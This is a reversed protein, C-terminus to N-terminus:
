HSPSVSLLIKAYSLMDTGIQYKHLCSSGAGACTIQFLNDKEFKKFVSGKIEVFQNSVLLTLLAHDYSNVAVNLALLQYVMVLTHAVSRFDAHREAYHFLCFRVPTCCLWSSFCSRVFLSHHCPFEIRCPSWLQDPFYVILFIRVLPHVCDILSRSYPLTLLLVNWVPPSIFSCSLAYKSHMSYLMCNSPTKGAYLTTSRAQM